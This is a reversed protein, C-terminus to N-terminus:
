GAPLLKLLTADFHALRADQPQAMVARWISNLKPMQPTMAIDRMDWDMFLRMASDGFGAVEIEGHNDNMAIRLFCRALPDHDGELLQVFRRDDYLLVGTIGDSKNRVRSRTLIQDLADADGNARRSAYLLKKLAM